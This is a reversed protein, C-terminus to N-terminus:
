ARATGASDSAARTQLDHMRLLALLGLIVLSLWGDGGGGSTSGTSEIIPCVPPTYPASQSISFKTVFAQSGSGYITTTKNNAQFPRYTPFNCSNTYGVVYLNATGDLAVGWAWDGGPITTHVAYPGWSGDGGWYTSFPLSSGDASLETIFANTTQLDVGNNTTQLEDVIPFDPSYTSGVIYANGANDVAIGNGTDEVSGGLYTSYVLANGQANFKTVFANSYLAKFQSQYPNVTPLDTSDTWGTVYAEGNSDATIALPVTNASGGFYTSYDLASGDPSFKSVFGPNAGSGPISPNTAQYANVVPFDTSNTIGTVYASGSGDIAIAYGQQFGSGGLYTSYLLANGAADFKTVFADHDGQFSGQYPNFMPFDVSTADGVVYAEGVNDVAIGFGMDVGSGGLYTSYVLANGQANLKTVFVQSPTMTNTSRNTSQFANVTPFDTSFTNGTVYANGGSDVAISRSEDGRSGGFYTSYVLASGDASFKSVFADGGHEEPSPSPPQIPNVTPFDDSGAQGTLYANGASDVAVAKAYDTNSGGLYTSYVVAPDIILRRGHDYQGLAFAVQRGNLVYRSNVTDRRGTATVQYVVPKLVRMDRGHATIVLNGQQDLALQDAGEIRFKIERPNAWPAVVWDYELRNPNGYVVWDVGPYLNLYRVAAYNPVNTHWQKPNNGIFYNSISKLRQEPKVRIHNGAGVPYLYVFVAPTRAASARHQLFKPRRSTVTRNLRLIAGQTTLAMSFGNARALYKIGPAFQGVNPEFPISLKGLRVALPNHVPGLVDAPYPAALRPNPDELPVAAALMATLCFVVIGATAISVIRFVYEGPRSFVTSAMGTM